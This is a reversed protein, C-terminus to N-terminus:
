PSTELVKRLHGAQSVIKLVPVPLIEQIQAPRDPPSADASPKDNGMQLAFETPERAAAVGVIGQFEGLLQPPPQMAAQIQVRVPLILPPFVDQDELPRCFVLHQKAYAVRELPSPHVMSGPM